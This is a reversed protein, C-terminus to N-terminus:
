KIMKVYCRLGGLPTTISDEIKDITSDEISGGLLQFIKNKQMALLWQNFESRNLRDGIERRIRYIPVLDDLNYEQNLRHYIALAIKEFQTYDTIQTLQDNCNMVNQQTRIWKLLSAAEKNTIQKTSFQFHPSKLGIELNELGKETLYIKIKNQDINITIAEEKELETLIQALDNTKHYTHQIYAILDNKKVEGYIDALNWLALLVRIKLNASKTVTIM